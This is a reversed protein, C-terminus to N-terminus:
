YKRSQEIFQVCTRRGIQSFADRLVSREFNDLSPWFYVKQSPKRLIKDDFSPADIDNGLLQPAARAKPRCKKAKADAHSFIAAFFLVTYFISVRFM